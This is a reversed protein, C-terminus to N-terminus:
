SVQVYVMAITNNPFEYFLGTLLSSLAGTSCTAHCNSWDEEFFM